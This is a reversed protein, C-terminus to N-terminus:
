SATTNRDNNAYEAIQQEIQPCEEIKLYGLNFVQKIMDSFLKLIPCNVLRLDALQPLSFAPCNSDNKLISTLQQLDQLVLTTLSPLKLHELEDSESEGIIQKIEGCHEIQLHKLKSLQKIIAPFFIKTLSPCKSLCLVTLHSLSGNPVHGEWISELKLVNNIYIRELRKLVGEKTRPANIVTLIEKSEEIICCKLENINEIGFDSLSLAEKCAILKYTDNSIVVVLSSLVTSAVNDSKLRRTSYRQDGVCIQFTLHPDQWLESNHLFTKFSNNDHFCFSLSNLETLKAVERTMQKVVNNCWQNGAKVEIVLEKLLSLNSIVGQHEEERDSEGNISFRLCRLKKMNSIQSPLFYIGTGRIDLVELNELEMVSPLEMLQDCCSLYLVELSKLCFPSPLRRIKTGHLDLVLLNQMFKFFNRPITTLTVNRQLFLTLLNTSKPKRPLFSLRDSNDMLSIRKVEKWDGCRIPKELGGARVFFKLDERESSIKLAMHRLVKNMRLCKKKEDKELLSADILEAVKVHGTDVDPVFKEATCCEVLHDAYIECGDTHLACYLFCLKKDKDDLQEFCFRIKNLFEVMGDRDKYLWKQFDKLTKRWLSSDKQKFYGAAKEILFPLCSCHKVVPLAIGRFELDKGKAGLQEKFLAVAEEIPLLEVQKTDDSDMARCINLERSALIVKSGKDNNCIGIDDLKFIDWVDDLLFLYKKDKLKDSIRVNIGIEGSGEIKLNLRGAIERRLKEKALELAERKLERLRDENMEDKVMEQNMEDPLTAFIVIDFVKKAQESNNLNKMIVTKGVGVTGWLGIRKVEKDEFHDTMKVFVEHLSTNEKLEPAPVRIIPPIREVFEQIKSKLELCHILEDRKKKLNKSFNFRFVKEKQTPYNSELTKVEKELQDVMDIWAQCQLTPKNEENLKSLVDDRMGYLVKAIDKMRQYNTEVDETLEKIEGAPPAIWNRGDDYLKSTIAASGLATAGKLVLAGTIEAM